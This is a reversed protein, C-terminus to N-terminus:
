RSSLRNSKGRCIRTALMEALEHLAVGGADIREWQVENVPREIHQEAAFEHSADSPDNSRITLRKLREDLSAELWYGQLQARGVIAEMAARQWRRTYSADLLVLDGADVAIRAVEHLTSYILRGYRENEYYKGPLPSLPDVDLAAQSACRKSSPPALQELGIRAWPM